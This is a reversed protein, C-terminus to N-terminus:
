KGMENLLLIPLVDEESVDNILGVPMQVGCLALWVLMCQLRVNM